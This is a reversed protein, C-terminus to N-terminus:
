SYLIDLDAHEILLGLSGLFSAYKLFMLKWKGRTLFQFGMEAVQELELIRLHHGILVINQINEIQAVLNAITLTNFIIMNLLSLSIDEKNLM